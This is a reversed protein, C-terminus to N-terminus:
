SANGDSNRRQEGISRLTATVNPDRRTQELTFMFKQRWSREPLGPVNQPDTELWLDELNVLVIEAPSAALFRLLAELVVRTDDGELPLLGQATLFDRIRGRLQPRGLIALKM